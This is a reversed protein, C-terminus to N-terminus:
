CKKLQHHLPCCFCCCCGVLKPASLPTTSSRNPLHALPKPTNDTSLCKPFINNATHQESSNSVSLTVKVKFQRGAKKVAVKRRKQNKRLNEGTIHLTRKAKSVQSRNVPLSLRGWQKFTTCQASSTRECTIFTLASRHHKHPPTPTGWNSYQGRWWWRFCM